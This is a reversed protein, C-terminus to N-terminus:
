DSCHSTICPGEDTESADRKCYESTLFHRSERKQFSWTPAAGVEKAQFALVSASTSISSIPCGLISSPDSTYLVGARVMSSNGVLLKPIFFPGIWKPVLGLVRIM